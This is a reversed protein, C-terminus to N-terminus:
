KYVNQTFTCKEAMKRCTEVTDDLETIIQKDVNELHAKTEIACSMEIILACSTIIFVLELM